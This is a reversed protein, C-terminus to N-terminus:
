FLFSVIEDKSLVSYNRTKYQFIAYADVKNVREHQSNGYGPSECGGVFNPRGNVTVDTEHYNPLFIADEVAKNKPPKNADRDCNGLSATIVPLLSQEAAVNKGNGQNKAPTSNACSKQFWIM